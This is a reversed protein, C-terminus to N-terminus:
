RMCWGGPVGVPRTRGGLEGAAAEGEWFPPAPAEAYEVAKLPAERAKWFDVVGRGVGLDLGPCGCFCCCGGRTAVLVFSSPFRSLSARIAAVEAERSWLKDRELGVRVVAPSTLLWLVPRM